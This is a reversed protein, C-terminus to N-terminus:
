RDDMLQTTMSRGSRARVTASGRARLHLIPGCPSSGEALSSVGAMRQPSQHRSLGGQYRRGDQVWASAHPWSRTPMASHRAGSRWRCGAGIPARLSLLSAMSRPQRGPRPRVARQRSSGAGFVHNPWPLSPWQRLGVREIGPDDCVDGFRHAGRRAAGLRSSAASHRGAAAVPAWQELHQDGFTMAHRQRVRRDTIAERPMQVIELAQDLSGSSATAVILGCWGPRVHAPHRTVLRERSQVPATRWGARPTAPAMSLGCPGRARGAACIAAHRCRTGRDDHLPASGWGPRLTASPSCVERRGRRTCPPPCCRDLGPLPQDCPMRSVDPPSTRIITAV